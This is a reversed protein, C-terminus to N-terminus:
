ASVSDGETAAYDRLERPVDLGLEDAVKIAQALQTAVSQQLDQLETELKKKEELLTEPTLGLSEIRQLNKQKQEELVELKAVVKQMLGQMAQRAAKWSTLEETITKEKKTM